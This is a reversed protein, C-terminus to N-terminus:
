ALGAGRLIALAVQQASQGADVRLDAKQYLPLREHYLSGLAAEGALALPREQPDGQIRQWCLAFPADLWVVRARAEEILPWGEILSGGGLAILQPSPTALLSQLTQRERERFAGWGIRGVLQAVSEGPGPLSSDLDVCAWEPKLRQIERLVTTKGSGMFGALLLKFEPTKM